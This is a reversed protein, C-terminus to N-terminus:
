AVAADRSVVKSFTRTASDINATVIVLVAEGPDILPLLLPTLLRKSACFHSRVGKTGGTVFFISVFM